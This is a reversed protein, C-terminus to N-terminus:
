YWATPKNWPPWWGLRGPEKYERQDRLVQALDKLAQMDDEHVSLRVTKYNPRGWVQKERRRAQMRQCDHCEYSATYRLSLHDNECLKGNFYKKLGAAMAQSRTMIPWPANAILCKRCVTVGTKLTEIYNDHILCFM